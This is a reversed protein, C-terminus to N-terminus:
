KAAFTIKYSGQCGNAAVAAFFHCVSTDGYCAIDNVGPGFVDTRVQGVAACYDNLPPIVIDLSIEAACNGSTQSFHAVFAQGVSQGCMYRGGGDPVQVDSGEDIGTDAGADIATVGDGCGIALVALIALGLTKMIREQDESGLYHLGAGPAGAGRHTM